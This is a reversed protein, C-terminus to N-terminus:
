YRDYSLVSFKLETGVNMKNGVCLAKQQYRVKAKFSEYCESSHYCVCVCVCSGRGWMPSTLLQHTVSLGMGYGTHVTCVALWSQIYAFWTVVHVVHSCVQLGHMNFQRASFHQTNVHSFNNDKPLIELNFIQTSIECHPATQWGSMLQEILDTDCVLRTGLGRTLLSLPRTDVAQAHTGM